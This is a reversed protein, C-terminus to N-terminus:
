LLSPSGKQVQFDLFNYSVSPFGLSQRFQCGRQKDGLLLGLYRSNRINVHKHCLKGNAAQFDGFRATKRGFCARKSMFSHQQICRKLLPPRRRHHRKGVASGGCLFLHYNFTSPKINVVHVAARAATM